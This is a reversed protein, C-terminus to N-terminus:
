ASEEEDLREQLSSLVSYFVETQEECMARSIATGIGPTIDGSAIAEHLAEETAEIRYANSAMYQILKHTYIEEPLADRADDEDEEESLADLADVIFEYRFDDPLMEGHATHCLEQIWDDAISERKWFEAGDTRTDLSFESRVEKALEQLTM